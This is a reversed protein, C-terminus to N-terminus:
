GACCSGRDGRGHDDAKRRSRPDGGVRTGAPVAGPTEAALRLGTALGASQLGRAYAAAGASTGASRGASQARRVLCGERQRGLDPQNDVKCDYLLQVAGEYHGHTSILFLDVKYAVTEDIRGLLQARLDIEFVFREIWSVTTTHGKCELAERLGESVDSIYTLDQGM